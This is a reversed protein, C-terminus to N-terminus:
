PAAGDGCAVFAGESPLLSRPGASVVDSAARWGDGACSVPRCCCGSRSRAPAARRRTDPHRLPLRGGAGGSVEFVDEDLIRTGFVVIGNTDIIPHDSRDLFQTVKKRCDLILTINKRHVSLAVRHWRRLLLRGPHTSPGGHLARM